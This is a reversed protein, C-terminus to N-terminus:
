QDKTYVIQECKTISNENPYGLPNCYFNCGGRKFDFGAHSHGFIHVKPKLEEIIDTNSYYLSNCGSEIYDDPMGEERTPESIGVHTVLIDCSGIDLLKVYEEQAFKSEDITKKVKAGYMGYQLNTYILNSDNSVNQFLEHSANYWNGSGAISVGNVIFKNGDLFKVDIEDCIEKLEILRNFSNDKYKSSISNSILYLEHNGWTIFVEGYYEKAILLIGKTQNNYHSIDGAIILIDGKDEPLIDELFESIKRKFKWSNQDTEKIYFDLHLDSIYDIKLKM